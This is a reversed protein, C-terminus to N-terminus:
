SLSRLILDNQQMNLEASSFTNSTSLGNRYSSSNLSMFENKSKPLSMPHYDILSEQPRLKPAQPMQIQEEEIQNVFPMDNQQQSIIEQMAPNSPFQVQINTPISM